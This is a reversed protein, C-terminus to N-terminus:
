CKKCINIFVVSTLKCQQWRSTLTFSEMRFKTPLKPIGRNQGEIQYGEELSIGDGLLLSLSFLLFLM